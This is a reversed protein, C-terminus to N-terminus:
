ILSVSLHMLQILPTFPPAYWSRVFPWTSICKCIISKKLVFHKCYDSTYSLCLTLMCLSLSHIINRETHFHSYHMKKSPSHVWGTLSIGLNNLLSILIDVQLCSILSITYGGSLDQMRIALSMVPIIYLTSQPPWPLTGSTMMWTLFMPWCPSPPHRRWTLNRWRTPWWSQRALSRRM